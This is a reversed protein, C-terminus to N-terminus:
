QEPARTERTAQLLKNSWPACELFSALGNEQPVFGVGRWKASPELSQNLPDGRMSRKLRLLQESDNPGIAQHRWLVVVCRDDRLKFADVIDHPAHLEVEDGLMPGTLYIEFYLAHNENPAPFFRVESLDEEEGIAHLESEPVIIRFVPLAEPTRPREISWSRAFAQLSSPSDRNNSTAWQCHGSSHFSVKCSRGMMRSLAYFDSGTSFLEWVTSRPGSCSGVAIRVKNRNRAILRM